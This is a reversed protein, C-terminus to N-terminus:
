TSCPHRTSSSCTSTSLTTGTTPPTGAPALQLLRHVTAAPHGTLESLRKAARGTPAGADGKGEQRRRTRRHLPRHLEQRLGARRHAGRSELDARAQRGAGARPRPGRRHPGEAM